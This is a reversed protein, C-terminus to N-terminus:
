GKPTLARIQADLGHGIHAVMLEQAKHADGSGIAEVIDRHGAGPDDSTRGDNILAAYMLFSKARAWVLDFAEVLVSNGTEEVVSRHLADNRRFAERIDGDPAWDETAEMLPGLRDAIQRCQGSEAAMRAAHGEIAQRVEYTQRAEDATITRVVFGGREVSDLINERELRLLAERVPTRSVNMQEALTGQVLRAGALVHGTAIADLLQDYVFDALRSSPRDLPRFGSVDTAQM